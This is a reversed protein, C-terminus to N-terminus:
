NQQPARLTAIWACWAVHFEPQLWNQQPQVSAVAAFLNNPKFDSKSLLFSELISKKAKLLM